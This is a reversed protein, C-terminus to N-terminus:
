LALNTLLGLALAFVGGVLTGSVVYFLVGWILDFPEWDFILLLMAIQAVSGLAYVVRQYIDAMLSGEGLSAAVFATILGIGAAGAVPAGILLVDELLGAGPLADRRWFTLYITLGLILYGMSFYATKYVLMLWGPVDIDPDLVADVPSMGPESAGWGTVAVFYATVVTMLAAGILAARFGPSATDFGLFKEPADEAEEVPPPFSEAVTAPRAIREPPGVTAQTSCVYCVLGQSTEVQDWDGRFDNGCRLCGAPAAAEPGAPKRIPQAPRSSAPREAQAEEDEDDAFAAHAAAAAKVRPTVPRATCDAPAKAAPLSEGAFNKETVEISAGCADCTVLLGRTYDESEKIAGCGCQLRFGKTM